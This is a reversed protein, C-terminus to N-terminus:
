WIPNFYQKARDVDTQQLGMESNTYIVQRETSRKFSNDSSLIMYDVDGNKMLWSLFDNSDNFFEAIGRKLGLHRFMRDYFFKASETKERNKNGLICVKANVEDTLDKLMEVKSNMIYVDNLFSEKDSMVGHLSMVIYREKM